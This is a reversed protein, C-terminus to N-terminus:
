DIGKEYIYPLPNYTSQGLQRIKFTGDPYKITIWSKVIAGDLGPSVLRVEGPALEPNTQYINSTKFVKQLEHHWEVEPPIANGYFAIYLNNGIGQAWILVPYPTDNQFKFDAAGYAVTADQGYPVYPVPMSHSHRELVPLDSLIAVNYLTTSIKCVGGGCTMVLDPGSYTPGQRYGNQETYPGLIANQSFITGPLVVTGTLKGAAIHVNEEEGPLPDPLITRYAALQVHASYKERQMNFDEDYQWPVWRTPGSGSPVSIMTAHYSGASLLLTYIVCFVVVWFSLISIQFWDNRIIGKKM